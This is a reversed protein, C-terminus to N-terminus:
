KERPSTRPLLRLAATRLVAEDFTKVIEFIGSDVKWSAGEYTTCTYLEKFALLKGGEIREGLMNSLLVDTKM